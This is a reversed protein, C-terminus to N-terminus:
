YTSGRPKPWRCAASYPRDRGPATIGQRKRRRPRAQQGCTANVRSTSLWSDCLGPPGSNRIGDEVKNQQVQIFVHTGPALGPMVLECHFTNRV